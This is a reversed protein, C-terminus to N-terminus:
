AGASLYGNKGGDIARNIELALFNARRELKSAMNLVAYKM